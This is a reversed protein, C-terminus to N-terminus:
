RKPGLIGGVLVAALGGVGLWVGFGPTPASDGTFVIWLAAGHVAGALVTVFGSLRRFGLLLALAVASAVAVAIVIWLTETYLELYRSKGADIADAAAAAAADRVEGEVADGVEGPSPVGDSGPDPQEETNAGPLDEPRTEPITFSTRIDSLTVEEGSSTFWPLVVLGLLFCVLGAISVVTGASFPFGIGPKPTPGDERRRRRPPPRRDTQPPPRDGFGPPTGPDTPPQPPPAPVHVQGPYGPRDPYPPQGPQTPQSGYPPQGGPAPPPGYPSHDPHAPQPGYPSRDPHAPQPGYPSHDPHASSGQYPPAGPYAATEPDPPLGGPPYSEGPYPPPQVETQQPFGRRDPSPSAGPRDFVSSGPDPEPRHDPDHGHRGAGPHRESVADGTRGGPALPRHGRRGASRPSQLSPQPPEARRAAGFAPESPGTSAGSGPRRRRPPGPFGPPPAGFVRTLGPRNRDDPCPTPM